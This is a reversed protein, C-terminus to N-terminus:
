INYWWTDRYFTKGIRLFEISYPDDLYPYSTGDPYYRMSDEKFSVTVVTPAGMATPVLFMSALTLLIAAGMKIKM